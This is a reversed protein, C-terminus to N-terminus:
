NLSQQARIMCPCLRLGSIVIQTVRLVSLLSMTEKGPLLSLKIEIPNQRRGPGTQSLVMYRIGAQNMVQLRTGDTDDLLQEIRARSPAPMKSTFALTYSEFGKAM